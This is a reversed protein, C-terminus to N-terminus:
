KNQQSLIQTKLNDVHHKINACFDWRIDTDIKANYLCDYSFDLVDSVHLKKTDINCIKVSCRNQFRSNKASLKKCVANFVDEYYAQTAVYNIEDAGYKQSANSAFGWSLIEQYVIAKKDYEYLILNLLKKIRYPELKIRFCYLIVSIFVVLASAITIIIDVYSVSYDTYVKPHSTQNNTLKIKWGEGEQDGYMTTEEVETYDPSDFYM